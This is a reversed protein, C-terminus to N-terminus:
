TATCWPGDWVHPLCHSVVNLADDDRMPGMWACFSGQVGSLENNIDIPYTVLTQVKSYLSTDDVYLIYDFYDTAQPLDNM